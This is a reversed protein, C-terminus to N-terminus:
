MNANSGWNFKQKLIEYFNREPNAILIAKKDTGSVSITDGGKVNISAHGDIAMVIDNFDPCIRLSIRSRGPVVLPRTALTHPCIPMILLVGKIDPMIIPGGASLSYGTSGTSTAIILGDGSISNIFKDNIDLDISIPRSFTGRSVSVDNLLSMRLLEESNRTHILELMDRETETYEEKIIKDLYHLAEDPTFETLFGLRGRNIGLIPTNTGAFLRSTHLLTGDGGISMVIDPRSIFESKDVIYDSIGSEALVKYDPLLVSIGAREMLSTIKIIFVISEKDEPRINVACIKHM